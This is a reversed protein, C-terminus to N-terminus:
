LRIKILDKGVIVKGKYNKRISKVMEKERGTCVPYLHTLVLKKVNAEKAFEGLKSPIIHSTKFQGEKDPNSCEHILVDADKSLNLLNESYGTDGSIIISKSEAELKYGLSSPHEVKTSYVKWLSTKKVLGEEIEYIKIFDLTEELYPYVKELLAHVIDNIGEPGYIFLKDSRNVMRNAMVLPGFDSFHDAHFHSFFVNYINKFYIGAKEIQRLVGNGCDFLLFDQKYKNKISIILGSANRSKNPLLVGTGLLVIEIM